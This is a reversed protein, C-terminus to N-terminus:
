RAYEGGRGAANGYADCAASIAANLDPEELSAARAELGLMFDEARYRAADHDKVNM